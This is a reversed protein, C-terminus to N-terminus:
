AHILDEEHNAVAQGLLALAGRTAGKVRGIGGFTALVNGIPYQTLESWDGTLEDESLKDAVLGRNTARLIHIWKATQKVLLAAHRHRDVIVKM